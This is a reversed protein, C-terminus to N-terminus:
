SLPGTVSELLSWEEEGFARKQEEYFRAKRLADRFPQPDTTNFVLGKGELAGQLGANLKAVDGRQELAKANVVRAVTDQVASPMRNWAPRNCLFWFGDWMHNTLSCYKQVEYLKAVDAVALANEQGDVVKTQLASYVEGFSIATPAAGLAQFLSVWLRGPPVRIKMGSLDAPTRIPRASSTIQRFGNDWVHDLALLGAAGILGRIHAGLGGDMAAFVQGYDKFAFGVGSIAARPVLSSLANAGSLTFFQIAGARLQSFMDPDSGLQSNPFLTIRVRGDTERAIQEAAEGMRVNLPHPAPLDSTFKYDFEAAQARRVWPTGLAAASAAAIVARRTTTM